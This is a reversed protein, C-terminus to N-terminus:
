KKRKGVIVIRFFNQTALDIKSKLFYEKREMKGFKPKKPM